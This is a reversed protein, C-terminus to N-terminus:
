WHRERVKCSRSGSGNMGRCVSKNGKVENKARWGSFADSSCKSSILKTSLVEGCKCHYFGFDEQNVSWRTKDRCAEKDKEVM